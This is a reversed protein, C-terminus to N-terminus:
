AKLMLDRLSKLIKTQDEKSIFRAPICIINANNHTAALEATKENWCIAARVGKYKNAVMSVGNGSGCIIIGTQENNESVQKALPHIFDPYDVSEGSDDGYNKVSHGKAKIHEVIEKKLETGAHDNSILINM